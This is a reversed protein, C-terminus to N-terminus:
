VGGIIGTALRIELAFCKCMDDCLAEFGSALEGTSLGFALCSWGINNRCSVDGFSSLIGRM